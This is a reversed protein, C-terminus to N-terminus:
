EDTSHMHCLSFRHPLMVKLDCAFDFSHLKLGNTSKGQSFPSKEDLPAKIGDIDRRCFCRRRGRQRRRRGERGRGRRVSPSPFIVM